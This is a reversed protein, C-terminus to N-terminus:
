HALALYAATEAIQRDLPVHGIGFRDILARYQADDGAYRNEAMETIPRRAVTGGGLAETVRQAVAELELAEGGSDFRLVPEGLAALLAAFILSLLERVAVYGRFVRMPAHVEIPRDDLADLIFSALAYTQHKNIYPGSINYIRTIVARRESAEASAWGAFLDEDERKLNGYLRLDHAAAGDDAFAAAGSSAVFLRDVGIPALAALVQASLARNIGVYDADSMAGVKDKTLFALHFLLTPQVSLQTLESLPRQPFSVGRGIGVSAAQSGFCVVRRRVEGPGLAAHLMALTARGIWGSAGVIVIRRTDDCLV